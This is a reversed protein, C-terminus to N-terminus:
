HSNPYSVWSEPNFMYRESSSLTHIQNINNIVIVEDSKKKEQFEFM